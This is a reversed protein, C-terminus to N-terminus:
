AKIGNVKLEARTSEFDDHKKTGIGLMLQNNIEPRFQLPHLCLSTNILSEKKVLPAKIKKVNIHPRLHLSHM